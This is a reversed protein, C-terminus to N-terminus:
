TYVERLRLKGLQLIPIIITDARLIMTLISGCSSHLTSAQCRTGLVYETFLITVRLVMTMNDTKRPLVM